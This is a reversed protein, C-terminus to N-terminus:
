AIKRALWEERTIEWREAPLQDGCLFDRHFREVLRMGTKHSIASSARNEEAKATRLVPQALVTFWYDTVAEVAETMLGQGQWEPALWFGRNDGQPKKESKMLTIVGILTDSAERPRISWEWLEGRVMAPLSIDRIYTLAADPGYPWPIRRSLYKVIEWRPFTQQLAPADKVGLPRLYLRPTELIPLGAGKVQEQEM